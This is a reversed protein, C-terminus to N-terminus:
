TLLAPLASRKDAYIPGLVPRGYDLNADNEGLYLGYGQTGAKEWDAPALGFARMLSILLQNQSPGIQSWIYDRGGSACRYKLYRGARLAGGARGGLMTFQFRSPHGGGALQGEGAADGMSNQLYVLSDDLLTRGTNADVVVSELEAMVQTFLGVGFRQWSLMHGRAAADNPNEGLAHTPGHADTYSNSHGPIGENCNITAIRTVDCKLAAAMIRVPIEYRQAQTLNSLQLSPAQTCRSPAPTASVLTKQVDHLGDVHAQLLDKDARSLRGRQMVQNLEGLVRDALWAKKTPGQPPPTAPNFGAFLRDFLAQPDNRLMGAIVTGAATREMSLSSVPSGSNDGVGYSQLKLAPTGAYIRGSRALVYDISDYGADRVRAVVDGSDGDNMAGLLNLNPHPGNTVGHHVGDILTLKSRLALLAPSDLAPAIPGSVTTLDLEGITYRPDAVARLPATPWVFDHHYNHALRIAFFCRQPAATQASALSSLFPVALAGSAGVLFQRRGITRIM